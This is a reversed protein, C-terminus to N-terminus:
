PRSMDLNEGLADYCRVLFRERGASLLETATYANVMEMSRVLYITRPVLSQSVETHITFDNFCFLRRRVDTSLELLFSESNSTIRNTTYYEYRTNSLKM